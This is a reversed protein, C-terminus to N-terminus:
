RPTGGQKGCDESFVDCGQPAAPPTAEPPLQYRGEPAPPDPPLSAIDSLVKRLVSDVSSLRGARGGPICAPGVINIWYKQALLRTLLIPAQVAYICRRYRDGDPTGRMAREACLYLTRTAIGPYAGLGVKPRDVQQRICASRAAIEQPSVGSSIGNGCLEGRSAEANLARSADVEQQNLAIVEEASVSPFGERYEIDVEILDPEYAQTPPRVDCTMDGGLPLFPGLPRTARLAQAPGSPLLCCLAVALAVQLRMSTHM